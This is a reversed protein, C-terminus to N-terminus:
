TCSQHFVAVTDLYPVNLCPHGSVSLVRYLRWLLVHVHSYVSVIADGISTCQNPCITISVNEDTFMSIWKITIHLHINRIKFFRFYWKQLITLWDYLSPSLPVVLHHSKAYYLRLQRAAVSMIVMHQGIIDDALHQKTRCKEAFVITNCCQDSQTSSSTTGKQVNSYVWIKCYVCAFYM